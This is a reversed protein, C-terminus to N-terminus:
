FIILLSKEEEDDDDDDDDDNKLSKIIDFSCFNKVDHNKTKINEREKRFNCVNSAENHIKQEKIGVCFFHLSFL